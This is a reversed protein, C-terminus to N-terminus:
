LETTQQLYKIGKTQNKIDILQNHFTVNSTMAINVPLFRFNELTLLQTIEKYFEKLDNVLIDVAKARDHLEKQKTIDFFIKLDNVLIDVVSVHSAQYFSFGLAEIRSSHPYCLKWHLTPLCAQEVSAGDLFNPLTSRHATAPYKSLYILMNVNNYLVDFIIAFFLLMMILMYNENKLNTATENSM